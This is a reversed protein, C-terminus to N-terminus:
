RNSVPRVVCGIKRKIYNIVPAQEGVIVMCKASRVLDGRSDISDMKAKSHVEPGVLTSTWYYASASPYLRYNGFDKRGTLPLFLTDREMTTDRNTVFLGKAGNLKGPTFNCKTLLEEVEDATPMRWNKGMRVTAVDDDKQLVILSDVESGKYHYYNYKHFRKEDFHKYGSYDGYYRKTKVEGWAFYEGYEEPSSAGVNRDAWKVSLGLDKVKASQAFSSLAIFSFMLLITYRTKM